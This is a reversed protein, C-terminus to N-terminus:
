GFEITLISGIKRLFLPLFISNARCDLTFFTVSSFVVCTAFVWSM